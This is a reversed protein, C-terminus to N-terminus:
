RIRFLAMETALDLVRSIEIVKPGEGSLRLFCQDGKRVKVQREGDVAVISPTFRVPVKEGVEIVDISKVRVKKILGPGIPANVTM